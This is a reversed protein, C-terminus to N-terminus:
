AYSLVYDDRRTCGSRADQTRARGARMVTDPADQTRARGARM